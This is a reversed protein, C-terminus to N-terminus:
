RKPTNHTPISSGWHYNADHNLVSNIKYFERVATYGDSSTNLTGQRTFFLETDIYFDNHEDLTWNLRGGANWNTYGTASWGLYPNTASCSKNGCYTPSDPGFGPKYFANQDGYKYGGRLNLSLVNEILPTTLYANAGYQNGFTNPHQALDTELQVGATTKNSHKKTIINIVGGMADSGYIISAPGRIVEIREIM